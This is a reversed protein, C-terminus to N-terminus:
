KHVEFIFPLESSVPDPTNITIRATLPVGAANFQFLTKREPKEPRLSGPLAQKLTEKEIVSVFTRADGPALTLSTLPEGISRKIIVSNEHIIDLHALTGRFKLTTERDRLPEATITFMYASTEPDSNVSLRFKIESCTLTSTKYTKGTDRTNFYFVILVILLADIVLIIRSLRIKRRSKESKGGSRIKQLTKETFTSKEPM